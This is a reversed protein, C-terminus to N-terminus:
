QRPTLPTRHPRSETRLDRQSGPHTRAAHGPTLVLSLSAKLSVPRLPCRANRPIAVGSTPAGVAEGLGRSPPSVTRAAPSPCKYGGLIGPIQLLEWPLRSVAAGCGRDQGPKWVQGRYTGHADFGLPTTADTDYAAIGAAIVLHACGRLSSEPMKGSQSAGGAGWNMPAQEGQPSQVAQHQFLAQPAADTDRRSLGDAARGQPIHSEM